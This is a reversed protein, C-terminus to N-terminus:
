NSATLQETALSRGNEFVLTQFLRKRCVRYKTRVIIKHKTPGFRSKREEEKENRCGLEREDRGRCRRKAEKLSANKEEEESGCM